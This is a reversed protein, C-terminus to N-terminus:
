FSLLRLYIDFNVQKSRDLDVQHCLIHLYQAAQILGFLHHKSEGGVLDACAYADCERM